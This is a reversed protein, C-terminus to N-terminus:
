GATRVGAPDVVFGGTGDEGTVGLAYGDGDFELITWRVGQPLPLDVLVNTTYAGTRLRGIEMLHWAEWATRQLVPLEALNEPARTTGPGAPSPACAGLLVLVTVIPLLILPRRNM